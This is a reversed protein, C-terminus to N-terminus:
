KCGGSSKWQFTVTRPREVARPATPTKGETRDAIERIAAVDGDSAKDVLKRAIVRLRETMQGDAGEAERRLEELLADRILNASSRATPTDHITM